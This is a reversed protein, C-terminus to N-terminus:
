HRKNIICQRNLDEKLSYIPGNINFDSQKWWEPQDNISNLVVHPQIGQDMDGALIKGTKVLIGKIGACQSEDIDSLIDDGIMITQKASSGLIEMATYFFSKEPKGMVQAHLGTAYELAAMFPAVDLQLVGDTLSYRTLELAYFNPTPQQM